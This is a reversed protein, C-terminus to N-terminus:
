VGTGPSTGHPGSSLFHRDNAEARELDVSPRSLQASVAHLDLQLLLRQLDQQSQEFAGAFQDGTVLQAAAQPLVASKDVKVM